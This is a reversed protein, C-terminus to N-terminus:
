PTRLLVKVTTGVGVTSTVSLSGGHDDAIRSAIALGLGTGSGLANQGRAFKKVVRPLDEPFIGIGRDIVAISVMAEAHEAALYV